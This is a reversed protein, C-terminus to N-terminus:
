DDLAHKSFRRKVKPDFVALEAGECLLHRCLDIAPSERTDRTDKKFAFGLIALRKGKLSGFLCDVIRHAFRRKQYDNLVVIQFHVAM